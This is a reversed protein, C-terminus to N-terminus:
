NDAEYKKHAKRFWVLLNEIFIEADGITERFFKKREEPDIPAQRLKNYLETLEKEKEAIIAM